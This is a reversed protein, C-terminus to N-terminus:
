RAEDGSSEHGAGIWGLWGAHEKPYRDALESKAAEPAVDGMVSSNILVAADIPLGNRSEVRAGKEELTLMCLVDGFNRKGMGDYLGARVNKMIARAEERQGMLYLALGYNHECLLPEDRKLRSDRLPKLHAEAEGFKGLMMECYALDNLIDDARHEAMWSFRREAGEVDGAMFASLARERLGDGFMERPFGAQELYALQQVEEDTPLDWEYVGVIEISIRHSELVAGKAAIWRKTMSIIADNSEGSTFLM